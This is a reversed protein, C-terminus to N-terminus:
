ELHKYDDEHTIEIGLELQIIEGKEKKYSYIVHPEDKFTVEATFLTIKKFQTEVDIIEEEEYGQELLYDYTEKELTYFNFKFYSFIVLPTMLILLTFIIVGWKLWKM